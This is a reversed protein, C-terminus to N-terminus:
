ESPQEPSNKENEPLAIALVGALAAGFEIGTKIMETTLHLQPALLSLIAAIGAWSSPEKFRRALQKM